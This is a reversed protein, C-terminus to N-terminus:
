CLYERVDKTTNIDCNWFTKLTFSYYNNFFGEWLDYDKWQKEKYYTITWKIFATIEKM